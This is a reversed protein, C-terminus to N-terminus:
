CIDWDTHPARNLFIYGYVLGPYSHPRMAHKKYLPVLIQQLRPLNYFPVGPYYHHELHYNSNLYLFNWFRNGRVWTAWGAPDEEKINYHQGIRNVAFAVPFVFLVPALYARLWIGPSGAFLLLVQIVLHGAVTFRREMAISRRVEAPYGASERAAARSYIFFLAPTFYLLKILRSNRKPSLHRRKPDLEASGLEAHHDLHWHTFQTRSIGCWFAYVQGLFANLRPRPRNFILNHLQEHLLVTFNFITFGSLLAAPIVLWWDQCRILVFTAGGLFLFQRAAVVLHRRPEKRQLGTLENKDILGALEKRLKGTARIWTQAM